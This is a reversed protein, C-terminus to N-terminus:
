FSSSAKIFLGASEKVGSNGRRHVRIFNGEIGINMAPVPSWFINAIAQSGRNALNNGATEEADLTQMTAGITSRATGGWSHKYNITAVTHGTGNVKGSGNATFDEGENRAWNEYNGCGRCANGYLLGINLTDAGLPLGVGFSIGSGTRVSDGGVDPAGAATSGGTAETGYARLYMGLGVTAGGIATSLKAQIDPYPQAGSHGLLAPGGNTNPLSSFPAYLGAAWSMGGSGGSYSIGPALFTGLGDLGAVSEAGGAVGFFQGGQQGMTWNGLSVNAIPMWTDNVYLNQNVVTPARDNTLLINVGLDGMATPTSSNVGISAGLTRMDVQSDPATGGDSPVLTMSQNTPFVHNQGGNWTASWNASGSVAISTDSGPAKFSGPLEGGVVSNGRATEPMIYRDRVDWHTRQSGVIEPVYRRKIARTYTPVAAMDATQTQNQEVREMRDLLNQLEARMEDVDNAQAPASALLAAVATSYVFGKVVSRTGSSAQQAVKRM